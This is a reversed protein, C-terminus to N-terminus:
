LYFNLSINFSFSSSFTMTKDGKEKRISEHQSQGGLWWNNLNRCFCTTTSIFSLTFVCCNYVAADNQIAYLYITNVQLKVVVRGDRRASGTCNSPLYRYHHRRVLLPNPAVRNAASQGRSSYSYHSIVIWWLIFFYNPSFCMCLCVCM